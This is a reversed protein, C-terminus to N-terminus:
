ATALVTEVSVFGPLHYGFRGSPDEALPILEWSTEGRSSMYRRHATGYESVFVASSWVPVRQVLERAREGDPAVEIGFPWTDEM